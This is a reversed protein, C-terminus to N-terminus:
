LVNQVTGAHLRTGDLDAEIPQVLRDYRVRRVEHLREIEIVGAVAFHHDGKGHVPLLQRQQIAEREPQDHRTPIRGIPDLHEAIDFHEILGVVIEPHFGGVGDGIGGMGVDRGALGAHFHHRDVPHHWPGEDGVDLGPRGHRRPRGCECAPDREAPIGPDGLDMERRIATLGPLRCLQALVLTIVAKTLPLRIEREGVFTGM